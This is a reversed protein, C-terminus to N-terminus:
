WHQRHLSSFQILVNQVFDTLGIQPEGGYLFDSIDMGFANCKARFLVNLGLCFLRLNGSTM